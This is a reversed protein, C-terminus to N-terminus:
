RLAGLLPDPFDPPVMRVRFLPTPPSRRVTQPGHRTGLSGRVPHPPLGLLRLRLVPDHVIYVAREVRNRTPNTGAPLLETERLLGRRIRRSEYQPRVLSNLRGLSVRGKPREAGDSGAQLRPKPIQELSKAARLGRTSSLKESPKTM